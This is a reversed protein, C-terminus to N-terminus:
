DGRKKLSCCAEHVMSFEQGEFTEIIAFEAKAWLACSEEVCYVIHISAEFSVPSNKLGNVPKIGAQGTNSMLPCIKLESTM